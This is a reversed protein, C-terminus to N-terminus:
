AENGLVHVVCVVTCAKVVATGFSDVFGYLTKEMEKM